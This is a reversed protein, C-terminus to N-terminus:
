DAGAIFHCPLIVESVCFLLKGSQPPLSGCALIGCYGRGGQVLAEQAKGPKDLHERYFVWLLDPDM